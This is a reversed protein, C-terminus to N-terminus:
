EEWADTLFGQNADCVACRVVGVLVSGAPPVPEVVFELDSERLETDCYLASARCVSCAGLHRIAAAIRVERPAHAM